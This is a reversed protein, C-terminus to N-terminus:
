DSYSLHGGSKCWTKLLMEFKNIKKKKSQNKLHIKLEKFKRAYNQHLMRAIKRLHFAEPSSGALSGLPASDQSGSGDGKRCQTWLPSQPKSGGPLPSPTGAMSCSCSQTRGLAAWAPNQPQLGGTCSSGGPLWEQQGPQSPAAGLAEEQRVSRTKPTKGAVFGLEM